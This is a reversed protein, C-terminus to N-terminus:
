SVFRTFSLRDANPPDHEVNHPPGFTPRQNGWVEYGVIGEFFYDIIEFWVQQLYVFRMPSFRAKVFSDYGRIRKNVLDVSVGKYDHDPKVPIDQDIYCRTRPNVFLEMELLSSTREDDRTRSDTKLGLIERYLTKDDVYDADSFTLNGITARTVSRGSLEVRRCVSTRDMEVVFLRRHRSEKNFHVRLKSLDFQVEFSMRKREPPSILSSERHVETNCLWALESIDSSGFSHERSPFIGVEDNSQSQADFFEDEQADVFSDDDEPLSSKAAVPLNLALHLAALTETERFAPEDCTLRYFNLVTFRL